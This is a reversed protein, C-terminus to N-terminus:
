EAASKNGHTTNRENDAAEKNILTPQQGQKGLQYNEAIATDVYNLSQLRKHGDEVPPMNLIELAQNITLVGLPMLEKLLKTKSENSAFQLRNSEFIITNGFAKERETFVKHTLELSLQLALPEIVSEYFASWEGETYTSNVISEGIGLYDYVKKKVANLQPEDIPTQKKDLPIFETKSDIAAVGGNNNMHMYDKMFDNKAERLNKPSMVQNYKIIGQLNVSNEIANTLGESQTHALELTSAIATNSDGLLDNSNFHRRLILLDNMSFYSHKGTSFLFKCYMDGATDVVYEINQAALPYIGKLNGNDDKQLYAFANNNLYLHTVLKYILDYSTMYPNPRTDLVRNLREEGHTRQSDLKSYIIHKGKLKAANRAIADIAARYVDNEYANGSFPTLSATGGSMVEIRSTNEFTQPTKFPNIKELWTVMYRGGKRKVKNSNLVGRKMNIIVNM